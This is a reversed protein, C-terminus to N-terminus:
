MADYDVVLKATTPHSQCTLVFGAELEWPELSWNADMEVAGELVKARCTCCMGGKCSYPAELGARRAADIVTEGQAIPVQYRRGDLRIEATAAVPAAAEASGDHASVRTAVPRADAAPTFLEVHIREHPIGLAELCARAEEVLGQPGCLFAHDIGAFPCAREVITSLKAADIRGALLAVDASERSLVHFVTLRDLHRDKLDEIETLYLIDAATRNGDVLIFRSKPERALISKMLSLVPTIGSGAAVALYTREAEADLPVTFRGSPTMVELRDGPRLDGCAFGSFRGSDVKKVAVRIEGDDLGSSISYSRRIDEGGIDARLTLYQGPAFRYEDKLEAPVDFVISVADRTEPRVDKVTLTHFRPTM